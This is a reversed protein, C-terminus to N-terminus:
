FICVYIYICILYQTYIYISITFYTFYVQYLRFIVIIFLICYAFRCSNSLYIFIYLIDLQLFVENFCTM